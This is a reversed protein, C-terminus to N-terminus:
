TVKGDAKRLPAPLASTSQRVAQSEADGPLWYMEFKSKVSPFWSWYVSLNGPWM